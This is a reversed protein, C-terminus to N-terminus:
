GAELALRGLWVATLPTQEAPKLICTNGCALAPALKWVAMQLPYNWPVIAGVVGVPERLTFNFHNPDSSVPITQGEIKTTWGAYYRLQDVVLAIDDDRSHALPKGNDLTEIEALLDAHHEVLGGVRWLMAGREAPSGRSWPGEFARRAARVARDVDAAQGSACTMLVEGTAPNTTEFTSGDAAEVWEGGILLKTPGSRLFAATTDSVPASALTM